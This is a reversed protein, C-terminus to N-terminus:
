GDRYFARGSAGGIGLREVDRLYLSELDGQGQRRTADVLIWYFLDRQVISGGVQPLDHRVPAISDIVRGFDGKFHALIAECIPIGVIRYTLALSNDSTTSVQRMNDLLAEAAQFQETAALVMMDHANGFPSRNDDVRDACVDALVLWRDGVDVGVLRLRLLMSAINQIDIPAAPAAKVLPSDPNRVESTLLDLIRDHEGQELLLICLHWWLHHKMQNSEAWNGSLGQLWEIGDDIRGQMTLAHVVAHAGWCDAPNHDIADRGCREAAVYDGDEEAAFARVSQFVGFDALDVHWHPTARETVDRMWAIRGNWFLELQVLRHAMLDTPHRDLMAEMITGAAVAHGAQAAKLGDFYARTRGNAGDVLPESERLLDDIVPKFVGSRGSHLIWAKALKAMAFTPDAEIAANLAPMTDTRLSVFGHVGTDFAGAAAANAIGLAHGYTDTQEPM